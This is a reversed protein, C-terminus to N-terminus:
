VRAVSGEPAPRRTSASLVGADGINHADLWELSWSGSLGSRGAPPCSKTRQHQAQAMGAQVVKLQGGPGRPVGGPGPPASLMESEAVRAISTNLPGPRSAVPELVPTAQRFDQVRPRGQVENSQSGALSKVSLTDDDQAYTEDSVGKAIQDILMDVKTIQKRTAAFKLQLLPMQCLTMRWCAHMTVWSM